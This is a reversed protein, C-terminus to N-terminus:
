AEDAPLFERFVYERLAQAWPRPIIGTVRAFSGTDLVSYAPRMAKQPYASSTIAQVVCNCHSLNVAETAFDCWSASGSNVIHFLGNGEAEVLKLTLQALDVTYTPSGIQDHVVNLSGRERALGLITSVFNKRGPGFLWATRIITLKELGSALLAEEGALKTKGYVCLPGTKGEVGYPLSAKGDFVFDTSYHVLRCGADRALRGLLAPLASNLRAALEPNDEAADVQTYAATNFIVQPAVKDVLRALSEKADSAALNIESAGGTSVVEWGCAHLVGAIAQGLLGTKGGLVLAKPSISM